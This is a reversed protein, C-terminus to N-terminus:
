QQLIWTTCTYAVISGVHCSNLLSLMSLLTFSVRLFQCGEWGANKCNVCGRGDGEDGSCKIKRKRCRECQLIPSSQYIVLLKSGCVAVPVRKRHPISSKGDMDSGPTARQSMRLDVDYHDPLPSNQGLVMGLGQASRRYFDADCLRNTALQEDIDAWKVCRKLM